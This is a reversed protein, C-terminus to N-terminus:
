LSYPMATTQCSWYVKNAAELSSSMLKDHADNFGLFQIVTEVSLHLVGGEAPMSDVRRPEPSEEPRLPTTTAATEPVLFDGILFPAASIKVKLLSLLTLLAASLAEDEEVVSPALVVAEESFPLVPM